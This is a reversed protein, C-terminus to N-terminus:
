CIASSGRRKGDPLQVKFWDKHRALLDVRTDAGIRGLSHYVTGPGERLNVSNQNIAAVLAPNPDPIDNTIPVRHTIDPGIDLFDAHVWGESNGNFDVHFWDQYMEVLAVKAGVDLKAMSVYNTGPGDRLNLGEERVLGVKPPPPPPVDKAAIEALAYYAAEPIQVLEAALWYVPQGEGERVQFWDGYRGIVQIAGGTEMLGVADYDLGPGNRLKAQEVAITAPVVLPALAERRSVLSVPMPIADMDLPPDGVQITLADPQGMDLPGLEIPTHALSVTRPATEVVPREPLQSIGIALPVTLAVIGHVLYRSPLKQCTRLPSSGFRTLVSQVQRVVQNAQQLRERQHRARQQLTRLDNRVFSSPAEFGPELM